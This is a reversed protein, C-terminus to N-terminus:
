PDQIKGKLKEQKLSDVAQQEPGGHRPAETRTGNGATAHKRGCCGLALLLAALSIWLSTRM